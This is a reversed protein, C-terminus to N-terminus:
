NTRVDSVYGKKKMEGPLHNEYLGFLLYILASPLQTTLAAQFQWAVKKESSKDLEIKGNEGEKKPTLFIASRLNKCEHECIRLKPVSRIQESLIIELLKYQQYHYITKQKENKLTVRFGYGELEKKMLKADTTIQEQIQRTKNGARDYYLIIRKNHHDAGFFDYFQKALQGQPLKDYHTFEKIVRLENTQRKEQAVVISSFFGPDYGILLPQKPDFYKLMSATLTFTDKLDLTLISNYKYSDTFCHVSSKFGVFFMDVVQKISINCIATLFEEMPMAQLQTRFYKPGLFDKNVFASATIYYVAVQRIEKLRPIWLEVLRIDRDNLRQLKILKQPDKENRMEANRTYIRVQADNVDKAVTWIENILEENMLKEYDEFTDDEGLDVRAADSVGTIGEYYASSRIKYHVGGRLAPFIRSKLKNWDQHKMEEIFAHVGNRGAVSDPQDSSALQFHHGTRFIISHKPYSVPYRPKQFWNPLKASGVIFDIGEELIPKQKPGYPKAFYARLNPVINQMLAVYSKHVLFSLEGPMDWGVRIMRPGFLGETKGSARAWKAILINADIITARIQAKNMYWEEFDRSVEQAQDSNMSEM